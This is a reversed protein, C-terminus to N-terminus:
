KGTRNNSELFFINLNSDHNHLNPFDDYNVSDGNGICLFGNRVIFWHAFAVLLDERRQIDNEVSRYILDWGFLETAM